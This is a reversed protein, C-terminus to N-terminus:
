NKASETQTEAVRLAAIRSRLQKLLVPGTLVSMSYGENSLLIKLQQLSEAAGSDAIEFAREITSKCDQQQTLRM